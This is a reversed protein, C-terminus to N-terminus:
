IHKNPTISPPAQTIQAEKLMECIVAYNAKEEHADRIPTGIKGYKINLLEEFSKAKKM